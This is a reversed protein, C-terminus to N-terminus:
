TGDGYLDLFAEELDPEQVTLQAVQHRGLLEIVPQIPGGLIATFRQGDLQPGEIGPLAALEAASPPPGEFWAELRQRVRGRIAEVSGLAVVKGARLVAVRDAARQVESLVHSSLFITAGADRAERVMQLFVHQMLPDLGSTPEDLILLEAPALFALLLAVKRRNGSSLDRLRRGLDLNLREALADRRRPEFGGRLRGISTVLQTVTLRDPLRLEGPVYALRGRIAVGNRQPDLGLVEIRGATPRLLDLLCRITTSKGAGNPGLFGFVEGRRVELDIGRVAHVPGYDKVLGSIAIAPGAGVGGGGGESM